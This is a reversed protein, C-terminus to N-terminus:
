WTDNKLYEWVTSIGTDRIKQLSEDETLAPKKEAKSLLYELYDVLENYYEAPLSKIQKELIEYPM